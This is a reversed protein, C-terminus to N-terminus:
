KKLIQIVENLVKHFKYIEETTLSDLVQNFESIQAAEKRRHFEYAKNGEDTLYLPMHKKDDMDRCRKVLEKKVLNSVLVSIRGKTLGLTECLEQQLIGPSDGICAITHIETLFLLKGIGYDSGIKGRESAWNIIRGFAIIIYEKDM